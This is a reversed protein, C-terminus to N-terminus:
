LTRCLRGQKTVKAIPRRMTGPKELSSELSILLFRTSPPILLEDCSQSPLILTLTVTSKRKHGRMNLNAISNQSFIRLLARCNIDETTFDEHNSLVVRM